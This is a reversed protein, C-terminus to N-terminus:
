DLVDEAEELMWHPLPETPHLLFYCGHCYRHTEDRSTFEEHCRECGLVYTQRDSGLCERCVRTESPRRCSACIVPRM